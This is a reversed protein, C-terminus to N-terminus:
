NAGVMPRPFDVQIAAREAPRDTRHRKRNRCGDPSSRRSQVIISGMLQLHSYGCMQDDRLEYEGPASAPMTWSITMDPVAMEKLQLHAVRSRGALGTRIM